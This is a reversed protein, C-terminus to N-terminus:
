RPPASAVTGPLSALTRMARTARAELAAPEDSARQFAYTVLADVVLLDLAATRSTCGTRLMRDFLREAAALFVEPAATALSQEPAVAHLAAVIHQTLRPPPDPVHHVAAPAPESVSSSGSAPDM